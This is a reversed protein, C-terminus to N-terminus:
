CCHHPTILSFWSIFIRYHRKQTANNTGNPRQRFASGHPLLGEPNIASLCDLDGGTQKTHTKAKTHRCIWEKLTILLELTFYHLTLVPKKWLLLAAREETDRHKREDVSLESETLQGNQQDKIGLRRQPLEAEAGCEAM